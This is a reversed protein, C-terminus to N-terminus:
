LPPPPMSSRELDIVVGDMVKSSGHEGGGVRTTSHPHPPLTPHRHARTFWGLFFCGALLVIVLCTIAVALGVALPARDCAEVANAEQAAVEGDLVLTSSPATVNPATSSSSRLHSAQQSSPQTTTSVTAAPASPLHSSDAAAMADTYRELIDILAEEGASLLDFVSPSMNSTCM